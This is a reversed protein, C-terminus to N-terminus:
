SIMCPTQEQVPLYISFFQHMKVINLIANLSICIHTYNRSKEASNTNQQKQQMAGVLQVALVCCVVPLHAKSLTSLLFHTHTNFWAAALPSM